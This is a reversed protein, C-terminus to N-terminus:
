GCPRKAPAGSEDVDFDTENLKRPRGVPRKPGYFTPKTKPRGRQRPADSSPTLSGTSPAASYSDNALPSPTATNSIGSANAPSLWGSPEEHAQSILPSADVSSANLSNSRTGLGQTHTLESLATDVYELASDTDSSTM